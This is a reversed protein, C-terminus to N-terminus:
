GAFITDSAPEASIEGLTLKRTRRLLGSTETEYGATVDAAYNPARLRVEIADKRHLAIAVAHITGQAARPRLIEAFGEVVAEESDHSAKDLVAVAQIAGSDRLEFLLPAFHGDKEVRAIATELAATFLRDLQDQDIPIQSNPPGESM